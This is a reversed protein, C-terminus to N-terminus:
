IVTTAEKPLGSVVILYIIISLSLNKHSLSELPKAVVNIYMDILLLVLM